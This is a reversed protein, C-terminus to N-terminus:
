VKLDKLHLGYAVEMNGGAPGGQKVQSGVLFVIFCAHAQPLETLPMFLLYCYFMFSPLWEDLRFDFMNECTRM